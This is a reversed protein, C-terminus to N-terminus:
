LLMFAYFQSLEKPFVLTKQIKPGLSALFQKKELAFPHM